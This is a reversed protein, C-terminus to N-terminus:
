SFRKQSAFFTQCKAVQLDTYEKMQRIDEPVRHIGVFEWSVNLVNCFQMCFLFSVFERVREKEVERGRWWIMQQQQSPVTRAYVTAQVAACDTCYPTNVYIRLYHIYTYIHIYVCRHAMLCCPAHAESQGEGGGGGFSSQNCRAKNHRTTNNPSMKKGGFAPLCGMLPPPPFLPGPTPRISLWLNSGITKKLKFQGSKQGRHILRWIKHRYGQFFYWSTYSLGNTGLRPHFLIRLNDKVSWSLKYFSTTSKSM